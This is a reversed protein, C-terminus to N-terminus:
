TIYQVHVNHVLPSILFNLLPYWFVPAPVSSLFLVPGQTPLTDKRPFAVYSMQAEGCEFLPPNPSVHNLGVLNQLAEILNAIPGAQLQSGFALAWFCSPVAQLQGFRSVSCMLSVFEPYDKSYCRRELGYSTWMCHYTCLLSCTGKAKTLPDRM